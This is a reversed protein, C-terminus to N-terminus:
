KSGHTADFHRKEEVAERQRRVDTNLHSEQQIEQMVRNHRDDEDSYNGTRGATGSNTPRVATQRTGSIVQPGGRVMTQRTAGGGEGRGGGGGGRAGGGGRRRVLQM